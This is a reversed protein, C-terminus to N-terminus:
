SHAIDGNKSSRMAMNICLDGNVPGLNYCGGLLFFLVYIYEYQMLRKQTTSWFIWGFNTKWSYDDTQKGPNLFIRQVRDSICIQLVCVCFRFSKRMSGLLLDFSIGKEDIGRKQHLELPSFLGFIRLLERRVGMCQHNIGM